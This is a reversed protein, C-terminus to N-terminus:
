GCSSASIQRRQRTRMKSGHLRTSGFPSGRASGSRRRGGQVAPKASGAPTTPDLQMTPTRGSQPDFRDSGDGPLPYLRSPHGACIAANASSRVGAATKERDNWQGIM